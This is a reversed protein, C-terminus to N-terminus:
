IYVISSRPACPVKDHRGNGSDGYPRSRALKSGYFPGPFRMQDVRLGISRGPLPGVASRGPDAM